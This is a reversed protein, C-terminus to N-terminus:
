PKSTGRSCFDEDEKFTLPVTVAEPFRPSKATEQTRMYIEEIRSIRNKMEEVEIRICKLKEEVDRLRNSAREADRREIFRDIAEDIAEAYQRETLIKM